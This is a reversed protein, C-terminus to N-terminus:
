WNTMFTFWVDIDLICNRCQKPKSKKHLEISNLFFAIKSYEAAKTFDLFGVFLLSGAVRRRHPVMCRHLFDQDIATSYPIQFIIRLVIVWYVNNCVRLLKVLVVKHCKKQIMLVGNLSFRFRSWTANNAIVQISM